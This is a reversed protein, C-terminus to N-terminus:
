KPLVFVEDNSTYCFQLMTTLQKEAEAASSVKVGSLNHQQFIEM